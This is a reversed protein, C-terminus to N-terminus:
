REPLFVTSDQKEATEEVIQFRSTGLAVIDGARVVGETIRQDNVFTGNTSGLDDVECYHQCARIQCHARSVGHDRLIVQATPSRGVVIGQGPPLPYSAGTEPGEIFVIRFPM